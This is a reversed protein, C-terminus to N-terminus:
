MRMRTDINQVEPYDGNIQCAMVDVDAFGLDVEPRCFEPKQRREHVAWRANKRAPLQKIHNPPKRRVYIRAGHIDM